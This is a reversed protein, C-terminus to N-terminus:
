KAGYYARIFEVPPIFIWTLALIILLISLAVTGKIFKKRHEPKEIMGMVCMFIGYACLISGILIILELARVVSVWYYMEAPLQTM